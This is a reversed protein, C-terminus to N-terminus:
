ESGEQIEGQEYLQKMKRRQLKGSTTRLLTGAPVLVVRHPDLGAEERIRSAIAHRLNEGERADSEALIVLREERGENVSFAVANGRKVGPLDRVALEIDQPYYNAGRIIILEKSRGCIYLEGGALYGM